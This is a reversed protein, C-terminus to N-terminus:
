SPVEVLAHFTRVPVTMLLTVLLAAMGAYVLGM